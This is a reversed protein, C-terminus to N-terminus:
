VISVALGGTPCKNAGRRRSGEKFKIVSNSFFFMIKLSQFSLELCNVRSDFDRSDGMSNGLRGNRIRRLEGQCRGEPCQWSDEHQMNFESKFGIWKRPSSRFSYVTACFDNPCVFPTRVGVHPAPSSWATALEFCSPALRERIGFWKLEGCYREM